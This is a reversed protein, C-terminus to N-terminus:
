VFACAFWIALLEDAGQQRLLESVWPFASPLLSLARQILFSSVPLCFTHRHTLFDPFHQQRPQPLPIGSTAAFAAVPANVFHPLLKAVAAFMGPLGEPPCDCWFETRGTTGSNVVFRCDRSRGVIRSGWPAAGSIL